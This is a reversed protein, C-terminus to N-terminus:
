DVRDYAIIWSGLFDTVKTVKVTIVDGQKAKAKKETVFNLHEGATINYGLASDPIIEGCTIKATKGVVDTGGNLAAELAAANDYDAKVDSGCATLTVMALAVMLIVAILRKM